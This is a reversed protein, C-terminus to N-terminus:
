AAKHRAKITFNEGVISHKTYTRSHTAFKCGVYTEVTAFSVADQIEIELEPATLWEETTPVLGLQRLSKASVHYRSGSITHSIKGVVFEKTEPDGMSDVDQLGFDDQIDVNQAFGIVTGGIKILARNGTMTNLITM